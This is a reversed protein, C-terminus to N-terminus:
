RRLILASRGTVGTTLAIEAGQVQRIGADGRLQETASLVHGLGQMYGESMLGGHTNVPLEGGLEIRGGEVFPGGEGKECFGFDELTVLVMYSFCDYLEAVDIDKPTVGADAFLRPALKTGYREWGPTSRDGTGDGFMGGIGASIYVPPHKLDRAREASTVVLACAGDTELCCDFIHFPEAIFRSLQHDELTIPERIQARENMAGHKKSAVAIAGFQMSTTGYKAM